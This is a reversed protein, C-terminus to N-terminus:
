NEVVWYPGHYNHLLKKSLGKYTKPVYVWVKSGEVYDSEKATRDYYEKMKQQARAINDRAIQQSLEINRVIKRRHEAISSTPDGPPLLSVEM